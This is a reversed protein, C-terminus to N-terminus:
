FVFEAILHRNIIGFAAVHGAFIPGVFLNQRRREGVTFLRLDFFSDFGSSFGIHCYNEEAILGIGTEGLWRQLTGRDRGSIAYVVNRPDRALRALVDLVERNPVAQDPRPALPVLTGDYDLALLIRRASQLTAVITGM